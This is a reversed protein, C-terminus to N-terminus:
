GHADITCAGPAGPSVGKVARGDAGLPRIRVAREDQCWTTMASRILFYDGALVSAIMLFVSASLHTCLSSFPLLYPIRGVKGGIGPLGLAIRRREALWSRGM